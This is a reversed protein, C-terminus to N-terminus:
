INYEKKKIKILVNWPREPINNLRERYNKRLPPYKEFFEIFYKKSYKRKELKTLNIYFDSSLFADKIDEIKIFDKENETREYNDNFFEMIKISQELYEQNNQKISDPIKLLYKNSMLEQYADLLIHLFAYKYEEKFAHTKFYKNVLFTDIGNVEEEIDTFTNKFRLDITRDIDAKLPEEKYKPKKNCEIITTNHMIVESDNSNCNRGSIGGGGTIERIVSNEIPISEPTEKFIILRKRNMKFVEPCPGTPLPKTILTNPANGYAYDGLLFVVFEDIMGKGNRGGGNFIIIKEMVQGDLASAFIDLYLKREHLDSMISTILQNMFNIKEIDTEVHYNYGCSMTMYDDYRYDRFERTKLDLVGNEFGLLFPNNNFQLNDNTFYIKSEEMVYQKFAHSKLYKLHRIVKDMKDEYKKMKSIREYIHNYLDESIYRSFENSNNNWRYGDYCYLSNKVWVFNNCKMNYKIYRAIDNHTINVLINEFWKEDDMILKYEAHNDLEAWYYISGISLKQEDTDERIKISTWTQEVEHYSYKPSVQSFKDFLRFGIDDNFYNKLAIGFNIWSHYDDSREFSICKEIFKEVISEQKITDDYDNGNTKNYIVTSDITNGATGMSVASLNDIDIEIDTKKKVYKKSKKKEDKIEKETFDINDLCLTNDKIHTVVFDIMEGKIIRHETDMTSKKRQNPLRWWKDSYISCDIIKGYKYKKKFREVITKINQIKGYYKKITYHFSKGDKEYGTNQTYSFDNDELEIGFEKLYDKMQNQFTEFDEQYGDLDGFFMVNDNEKLRLHYGRENMLENCINEINGEYHPCNWGTKTENQFVNYNKLKYLRIM